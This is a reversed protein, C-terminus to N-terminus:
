RSLERQIVNWLPNDHRRKFRSIDEGREEAEWIRWPIPETGLEYDMGSWAGDGRFAYFSWHWDNENFVRILDALYAQAGGVRRDVGFESAVIRWAPIEHREMWDLVPSVMGRVNELTWAETPGDWGGPMRDPYSYREKNARFTVYTWPGYGHFAYLIAPEAIPVLM